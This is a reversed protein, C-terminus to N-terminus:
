GEAGRRGPLTPPLERRPNDERRPGAGRKSGSPGVDEAIEHDANGDRERSLNAAELEPRATARDMGCVDWDIPRECRAAQILVIWRGPVLAHNQSRSVIGISM